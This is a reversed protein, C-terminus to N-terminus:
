EKDNYIQNMSADLNSIKTIVSSGIGNPDGIVDALEKITDLASHDM